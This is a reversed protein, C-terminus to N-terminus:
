CLLEDISLRNVPNWSLILQGIAEGFDVIGHHYQSKVYSGPTGVPLEPELTFSSFIICALFTLISSLILYFQKM